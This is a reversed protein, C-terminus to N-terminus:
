LLILFGNLANKFLYIRAISKQGFIKSNHSIIKFILAIVGISMIALIGLCVISLGIKWGVNGNEKGSKHDM